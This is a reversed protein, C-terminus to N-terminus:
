KLIGMIRAKLREQEPKYFQFHKGVSKVFVDVIERKREVTDGIAALDAGVLTLVRMSLAKSIPM